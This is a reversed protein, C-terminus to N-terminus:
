VLVREFPCDWGKPSYTFVEAGDKGIGITHECQASLSHDRTVSTWGDSLTKVGAGGVNIMPEITFIMGEELELGEGPSGVHVVSPAEHFQRGVGHGCFERVVSFRLSEAHTQIVHGVDGLTAGARSVEIGKMLCEHTAEMLQYARRGVKEGAVYMRSTDGYWGEKIVTVDVNVIDGELLPRSESPIGHCVVHNVSTCISKPFGRYNLPAPIAGNDMIMEHCIRDLYGTTVGVQLEEVVMDLVEAALRGSVRMGEFAEEGYIRVGSATVRKILTDKKM